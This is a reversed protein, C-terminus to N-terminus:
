LIKEEQFPAWQAEFSMCYALYYSFFHLYFLFLHFIIFPGFEYGLTYGLFFRGCKVAAYKM